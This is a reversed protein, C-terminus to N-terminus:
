YFRKSKSIRWPRSFAAYFAKYKLQRFYVLIMFPDVKALKRLGWVSVVYILLGAVLGVLNMSTIALMAAVFLCFLMPKREGGMIMQPRYLARHLPTQRLDKM